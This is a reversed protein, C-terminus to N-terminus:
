HEVVTQKRKDANQCVLPVRCGFTCFWLCLLLFAGCPVYSAGPWVQMVAPVVACASRSAQEGIAGLLGRRPPRVAWFVLWGLLRPVVRTSLWHFRCTFCLLMCACCVAGCCLSTTAVSDPRRRRGDTAACLPWALLVRSNCSLPFFSGARNLADFLLTWAATSAHRYTSPTM